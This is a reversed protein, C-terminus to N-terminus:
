TREAMILGTGTMSVTINDAGRITVGMYYNGPISMCVKASIGGFRTITTPASVVRSSLIPRNDVTVTLSVRKTANNAPITVGTSFSMFCETQYRGAVKELAIVKSNRERRVYGSKGITAGAFIIGKGTTIGRDSITACRTVWGM